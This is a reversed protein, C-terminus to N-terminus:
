VSGGEEDVKVPERGGDVTEQRRRGAEVAKAVKRARPGQCGAEVAKAVERAEPGHCCYECYSKARFGLSNMAKRREVMDTGVLCIHAKVTVTRQLSADWAQIGTTALRLAERFVAYLFSDTDWAENPGSIYGAVLRNMDKVRVWPPLNLCYLAIPQNKYSQRSKFVM